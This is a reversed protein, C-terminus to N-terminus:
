KSEPEPEKSPKSEVRWGGYKIDNIKRVTWYATQFGWCGGIGDM